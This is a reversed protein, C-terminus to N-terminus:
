KVAFCFGEKESLVMSFDVEKHLALFSSSFGRISEM